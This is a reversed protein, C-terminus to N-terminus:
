FSVKNRPIELFIKIFPKVFSYKVEVLFENGNKETATFSYNEPFYSDNEKNEKSNEEEFSVNINLKNASEDYEIEIGRPLENLIQEISRNIFLKTIEKFNFINTESCIKRSRGDRGRIVVHVKIEISRKFFM